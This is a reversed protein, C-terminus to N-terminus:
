PATAFSISRFPRYVPLCTCEIYSPPVFTARVLRQMLRQSEEEARRREAESRALSAEVTALQCQTARLASQLCAKCSGCRCSATPPRGAALSAPTPALTAVIGAMRQLKSRLGAMAQDKQAVEHQLSAIRRENEDKAVALQAEHAALVAAAQEEQSVPLSGGLTELTKVVDCEAKEFQTLVRDIEDDSIVAFASVPKTIDQGVVVQTGAVLQAKSRNDM